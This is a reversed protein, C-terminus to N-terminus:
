FVSFLSCRHALPLYLRLSFSRLGRVNYVYKRKNRGRTSSNNNNDNNHSAANFYELMCSLILGPFSAPNSVNQKWIIRRRSTGSCRLVIRDHVLYLQWLLVVVWGKTETSFWGFPGPAAPVVHLIAARARSKRIFFNRTACADPRNIFLAERSFFTQRVGLANKVHQISNIVVKANSQPM